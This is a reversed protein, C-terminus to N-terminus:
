NFNYTTLSSYQYLRKYIKRVHAHSIKLNSEFRLRVHSLFVICFTASYESKNSWLKTWIIIIAVVVVVHRRTKHPCLFFVFSDSYKLTYALLLKIITVYGRPLVCTVLRTVGNIMQIHTYLYIYTCILSARAVEDACMRTRSKLVMYVRGHIFSYVIAGWNKYIKISITKKETQWVQNFKHWM